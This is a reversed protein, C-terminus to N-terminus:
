ASDDVRPQAPVVYQISLVVADHRNVERSERWESTRMTGKHELNFQTEAGHHQEGGREKPM